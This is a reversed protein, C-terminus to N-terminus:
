INPCELSRELAFKVHFATTSACYTSSRIRPYISTKKFTFIEPRPLIGVLLIAFLSVRLFAAVVEEVALLGDTLGQIVM